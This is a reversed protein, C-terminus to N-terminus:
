TVNSTESYNRHDDDHMLKIKIDVKVSSTCNYVTEMSYSYVDYM